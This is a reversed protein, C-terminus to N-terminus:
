DFLGMAEWDFLYEGSADMMVGTKPDYIHQFINVM